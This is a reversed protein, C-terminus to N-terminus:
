LVGSALTSDVGTERAVLIQETSLKHKVLLDYSEEAPIGAEYLELLDWNRLYAGDTQFGGSSSYPKGSTGWLDHKIDDKALDMIREVYKAAEVGCDRNVGESVWISMSARRPDALELAELGHKQVEADLKELATYEQPMVTVAKEALQLLYERDRLREGLAPDPTRYVGRERSYDREHLDFVEREVNALDGLKHKSLEFPLRGSVFGDIIDDQDVHGHVYHEYETRFRWKSFLGVLQDDSLARDFHGDQLGNVIAKEADVGSVGSEQLRDLANATKSRYTHLHGSSSRGTLSNISGGEHLHGKTREVADDVSIGVSKLAATDQASFGKRLANYIDDDTLAVSSRSGRSRFSEIEDKTTVVEFLKAIRVADSKEPLGKPKITHVSGGAPQNNSGVLRPVGITGLGRVPANARKHVTTQRGNKDVVPTPILRSM